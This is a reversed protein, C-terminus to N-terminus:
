RVEGTVPHEFERDRERQRNEAMALYQRATNNGPDLRLAENMKEITLELQGKNYYAIGTRVYENIRRLADNSQDIYSQAVQNGPDLTLADRMHAKSQEYRKRKYSSIGESIANDIKQQRQLETSNDPKIEISPPSYPPSTVFVAPQEKVPAPPAVEAPPASPAPEVASPPVPVPDLPTPQKDTFLSKVFLLGIIMAVAIGANRVFPSLPPPVPKQGEKNKWSDDEHKHAEATEYEPLNIELESSNLEQNQPILEPRSSM